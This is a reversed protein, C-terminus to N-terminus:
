DSSVWMELFGQKWRCLPFNASPPTAQRSLLLDKMFLVFKLHFADDFGMETKYKMATCQLLGWEFSNCCRSCYKISSNVNCLTRKQKARYYHHLSEFETSNGGYLPDLQHWLQKGSQTFELKEERAGSVKGKKRNRGLGMCQIHLWQTVLM